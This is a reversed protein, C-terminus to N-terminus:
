ATKLYLEGSYKADWKLKSLSENQYKMQKTIEFHHKDIKRSIEFLKEEIILENQKREVAAALIQNLYLNLSINLDKAQNVLKYHIISSTRVNFVGSFNRESKTEPEPISKNNTFLYEIFDNKEEIFNQLAEVETDGKGYCAYKGLENSYAIFWVEDEFKEEEIIINYKLKKYYSLDKKSM